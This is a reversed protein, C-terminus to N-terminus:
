QVLKFGAFAAVLGLVISITIYVLAILYKGNQLLSLNEMSFASFTTFGGCLGTALFLKWNESLGNEKLSLGFLLGIVFSGTINVLLTPLPFSRTGVLMTAAYRFMSGIAGGAATLLFAKIM